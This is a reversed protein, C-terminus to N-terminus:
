SWGFEILRAIWPRQAECWRRAAPRARRLQQLLQDRTLGRCYAYTALSDVSAAESCPLGRRAAAELTVAHSFIERAAANRRNDLMALAALALGPLAPWPSQLLWVALGAAFIALLATMTLRFHLRWEWYEQAWVGAMDPGRAVKIGSFPGNTGDVLDGDALWPAARLRTQPLRGFRDTM